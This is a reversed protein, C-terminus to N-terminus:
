WTSGARGPGDERGARAPQRRAARRRRRHRHSRRRAPRAPISARGRDRPQREDSRSAAWGPARALAPRIVYFAYDRLDADPLDGSLNLSLIPFSAPTIREVTLDLDPPMYSRVEAIRSQAQQLAAIMDTGAAFLASMKADLRPLDELAGPSDGAGGDVGARHSAHGVAGDLAAAADRQARDRRRPPLAPAPLDRQPPLRPRGGGRPLLPDHRTGVVRGNRSALGVLSM